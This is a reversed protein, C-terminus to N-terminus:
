YCCIEFPSGKLVRESRSRELMESAFGLSTRRVGSIVNSFRLRSASSSVEAPKATSVSEGRDSNPVNLPFLKDSVVQRVCTKKLLPAYHLVNHHEKVRCVYVYFLHPRILCTANSM